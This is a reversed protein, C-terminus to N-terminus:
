NALGGQEEGGCDRLRDHKDGEQIGGVEGTENDSGEEETM